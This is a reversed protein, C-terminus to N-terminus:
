LEERVMELRIGRSGKLLVVANAPLPHQRFYTILDDVSLFANFTNNNAQMFHEGVLITNYLKKERLLHIINLHERSTERGLELMDGLIAWKGPEQWQAFNEIAAAMSSPNANYADMIITRGTATHVLQSRNNSPEYRSVAAVAEQPTIDFQAGVALAALVNDTNYSGILHTNIDPYDKVSLRLFPHAADAPLLSAKNEKVGYRVLKTTRREGIMGALLPDDANFLITGGTRILYDYLEGKTRQVGELSGFGELHAKGINTILGFDPEAIRCLAAIEGPHSAGMEVIGAQTSGNMSLLTLPVGIHNNLNGKTVGTTYKTSLVQATLEKTTTKGNTGTIAVIPINLQRRHYRALEQLTALADNTKILQPHSPLSPDDVIAYAAGSEIAPLAFRNGDFREGKLAFFLCGAVINRSDTSVLAHQQFLMYLKEM